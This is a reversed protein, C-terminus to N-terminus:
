NKTYNCIIPIVINTKPIPIVKGLITVRISCSDSKGDDTTATFTVTTIGV